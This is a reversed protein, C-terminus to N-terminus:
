RRVAAQAPEAKKVEPYNLLFERRREVFTKLSMTQRPGRGGPEELDKTLGNQFAEFSYLKHTDKEVDNAILAQYKEALPRIREWDLWKEAIDRV